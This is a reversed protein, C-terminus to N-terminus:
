SEAPTLRLTGATPLGSFHLIPRLNRVPCLHAELSDLSRIWLRVVGDSGSAAFALQRGDPSLAYAGTASM